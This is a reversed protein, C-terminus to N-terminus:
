IWFVHLFGHTLNERFFSSRTALQNFLCQYSYKLSTILIKLESNINAAPYSFFIKMTDNLLAIDPLAPLNLFNVTLLATSIDTPLQLPSDEFVFHLNPKILPVTLTLLLAPVLFM